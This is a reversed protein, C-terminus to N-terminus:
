RTEVVSKKKLMQEIQAVKRGIFVVNPLDFQHAQAGSTRVILDGSGLGLIWHRFLDSRQKELTMGVADYVKEGGGIETCVKLQGPTFTMYIQRDFFIFTVLWVIFLVTSILLYGGMTIRIDLRGMLEVTPKWLDAIYFIMCLMVVLLIILISWMGRLPVSTVVIVMLLVFAFVVGYLKHDAIRLRAEEPEEPKDIKRPLQRDAKEKKYPIPEILIGERTSGDELKWDSKAVPTSTDHKTPVLAVVYGSFYTLISLVFGVAWVPWWYFLNSHSVITIENPLQPAPGLLPPPTTPPPAPPITPPVSSM